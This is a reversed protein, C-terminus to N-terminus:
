FTDPKTATRGRIWARLSRTEARIALAVALFAALGFAVHSVRVLTLWRSLYHLFHLVM